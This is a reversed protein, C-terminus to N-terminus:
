KGLKELYEKVYDQYDMPYRDGPNFIGFGDNDCINPDAGNRLLTEFYDCNLWTSRKMLRTKGKKNKKNIDYGHGIFYQILEDNGSGLIWTFANNTIEAGYNALKKALEFNCTSMAEAILGKTILGSNSGTLPCGNAILRDLIGIDRMNNYKTDSNLCLASIPNLIETGSFDLRCGLEIFKDVTDIQRFKCAIYIPCVFHTEMYRKPANIDAGNKVLFEIMDIRGEKAASFLDM